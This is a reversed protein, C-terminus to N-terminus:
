VNAVQEPDLTRWPSVRRARVEGGHRQAFGCAEEIDDFCVPDPYGRAGVVMAEESDSRSLDSM